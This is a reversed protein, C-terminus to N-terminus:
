ITHKGRCRQISGNNEPASVTKRVCPLKVKDLIVFSGTVSIGGASLMHKSYILYPEYAFASVQIKVKLGSFDKEKKGSEPDTSFDWQSVDVCSLLTTTASLSLYHSSLGAERGASMLKWAGWLVYRPLIHKKYNFIRKKIRESICTQTLQDLIKRTQNLTLYIKAFNRYPRKSYIYSYIM